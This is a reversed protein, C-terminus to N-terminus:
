LQKILLYADTLYDINHPIRGTRYQQDTRYPVTRIQFVSFYVYIVYRLLCKNKKCVIQAHVVRFLIATRATKTRAFWSDNEAIKSFLILVVYM